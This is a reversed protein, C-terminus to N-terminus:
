EMEDAVRGIIRKAMNVIHQHMSTLPGEYPKIDGDNTMWQWDDQNFKLIEVEGTEENLTNFDFCFFWVMQLGEDGMSFYIIKNMIEQEQESYNDWDVDWYSALEDSLRGIHAPHLMRFEENNSKGAKFLGHEMIFEIYSPPFKINLRKEAIKIDELHIRQTFVPKYAEELFDYNGNTAAMAEDITEGIKEFAEFASLKKYVEFDKPVEYGNIQNGNKDFIDYSVPVGPRVKAKWVNNDNVPFVESTEETSRIFVREKFKNTSPDVEAYQSVEGNPHFRKFSIMKGQDDFFSHCCLHGNPALWWKWEGIMQGKENKLGVEWEKNSANWQAETPVTEPKVPEQSM